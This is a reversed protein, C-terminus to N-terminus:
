NLCAGPRHEGSVTRRWCYECGRLVTRTWYCGLRRTGREFATVAVHAHPRSVLAADSSADKLGAHTTGIPANKWRLPITLQIQLALRVGDNELSKSPDFTEAASPVTMNVQACRVHRVGYGNDKERVRLYPVRHMHVDTPERVQLALFDRATHREGARSQEEGAVELWARAYVLVVECRFPKVGVVGPVSGASVKAVEAFETNQQRVTAGDSEGSV